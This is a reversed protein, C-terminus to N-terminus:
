ISTDLSILHLQTETAPVYASNGAQNEQPNAAQYACCRRRGRNDVAIIGCRPTIKSETAGAKIVFGVAIANGHQENMSVTIRDPPELALDPSKRAVV